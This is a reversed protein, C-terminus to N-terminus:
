YHILRKLSKAQEVWSQVESLHPTRRVLKKQENIENMRKFLNNPNRQALEVVTDVGSQELLDAYEKAVGKLRYLDIHNVWTLIQSQAIGSRDSLHKRGRRTAGEVMLDLATAVGVSRLQAGVAPGIGEVYEIEKRFESGGGFSRLYEELEARLEASTPEHAATMDPERAALQPSEATATFAAAGADMGGSLGADVTDAMDSSADWAPRSAREAEGAVGSAMYGMADGADAVAEGTADAADSAWEGATALSEGSAEAAGSALDGVADGTEAVAEGTAEVTDGAWDRAEVVEESVMDAAGSAMDGIADGADAVAEGTDEVMDGAWDHAEALGEGAADMVTEPTGLGADVFEGARYGAADYTTEASSAASSAEAEVRDAARQGYAMTGAAAGTAAASMGAATSSVTTGARAAAGGATTGARTAAPAVQRDSGRDFFLLIILLLEIGKILLGFTNAFGDSIGNIVFYGVLTILTYALLIWRITGRRSGSATWFLVLLVLYGVGNLVLMWNTAGFGGVIDFGVLLHLIGTAATLLAILSKM